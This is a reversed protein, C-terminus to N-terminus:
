AAPSASAPEVAESLRVTRGRVSLRGEESLQGLARVVTEPALGLYSGIDARTLPLSFLGETARRVQARSAYNEIFAAVRELAPLGSWPAATRELQMAYKLLLRELLAASSQGSGPAAVNLRCVSVETAAQATYAHRGHAYGELGVLDGPMGLGAVRQTGNGLNERLILCGNVVLYVTGTSEGQRLLLEGRELVAARRGRVNEIPVRLEGWCRGGSPCTGCDTEAISLTRVTRKRHMPPWAVALGASAIYPIEALTRPRVLIPSARPRGGAPRARPHPIDDQESRM